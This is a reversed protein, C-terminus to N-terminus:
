QLLIGHTSMNNWKSVNDQNWALWDKSKNKLSKHLLLLYWNKYDKTQSLWAPFGGNTKPKLCGPQFGVMNIDNDTVQTDVQLCQSQVVMFGKQVPQPRFSYWITSLLSLDSHGHISVYIVIKDGPQFCQLSVPSLRHREGKMRSQPFKICFRGYM